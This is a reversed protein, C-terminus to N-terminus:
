QESEKLRSADKSVRHKADSRLILSYLDCARMRLLASPADRLIAAHALM